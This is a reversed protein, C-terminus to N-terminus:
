LRITDNRSNRIEDDHSYARNDLGSPKNESEPKVEAAGDMLFMTLFFLISGTFFFNVYKKLLNLNNFYNIVRSTKWVILIKTFTCKNSM